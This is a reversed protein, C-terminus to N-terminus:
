SIRTMIFQMMEKEAHGLLDHVGHDNGSSNAGNQLLLEATEIGMWKVGEKRKSLVCAQM